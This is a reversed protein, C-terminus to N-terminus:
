AGRGPAPGGCLPCSVLEAAFPAGCFKCFVKGATGPVRPQLGDGGSMQWTVDVALVDDREICAELARELDTGAIPGGRLSITLSVVFLDGGSSPAATGTHTWADRVRRLMVGIERLERTPEGSYRKTIAELESKVWEIADPAIAVSLTSAAGM